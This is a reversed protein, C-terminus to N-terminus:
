KRAAERLRRLFVGLAVLAGGVVALAIAFGGITADSNEFLKEDLSGVAFILLTLPIAVALWERVLLGTVLNLAAFSALQLWQPTPSEFVRAVALLYFAAPYLAAALAVRPLGTPVGRETSRARETDSGTM